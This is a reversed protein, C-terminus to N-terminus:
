CSDITGDGTKATDKFDAVDGRRIEFHRTL